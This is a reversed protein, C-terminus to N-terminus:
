PAGLDNCATAKASVKQDRWALTGKLDGCPESFGYVITGDKGAAVAPPSTGTKAAHLLTLKGSVDRRLVALGGHDTDAITAVLLETAPEPRWTWFDVFAPKQAFGAPLLKVASAATEPEKRPGVLGGHSAAIAEKFGDDERIAKLDDTSKAKELFNAASPDGTQAARALETLAWVGAQLKHDLVLGCALNYRAVALAPRVVLAARWWRNAEAFSKKEYRRSGGDNLAQALARATAVCDGAIERQLARVDAKGESISADDGKALADLRARATDSTPCPRVRGHEETWLPVEGVGEIPHLEVTTEPPPDDGGANTATASTDAVGSDTSSSSAPAPVPPQDRERCSFLLACVVAAAVRGTGNM